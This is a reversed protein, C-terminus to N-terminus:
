VQVKRLPKEFREEIEPNELIEAFERLWRRIYGVDLAQHQRYVIGEIDRVDQPRGAIAKHIILDEASCIRVHKGPALEFAVARRMVEDEYGPLGLSIDVPCGNSARVLLVRHKRAFSVADAMRPQFREVMRELFAGPEDLPAAVTVDIDQTFRPEGWYQVAMGGIVSYAVGFEQLVMHLEWAAQERQNM